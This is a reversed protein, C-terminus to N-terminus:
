VSTSKGSHTLMIWIETQLFLNNANSNCYKTFNQRDTQETAM